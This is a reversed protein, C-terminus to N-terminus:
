LEIKAIIKLHTLFSSHAMIQAYLPNVEFLQRKMLVRNLTQVAEKAGCNLGIHYDIISRDCIDIISFIFLFRDEGHIYGYKIDAEWLQNSETITNNRALKRPHSVKKRRQPRLIDLEKCLRYVKKKNIILKYQRRLVVTLKRYGYSHCEGSILELLFEKIQEDAIKKGDETISYGPAPRGESVQKENVRYNKRYYYTSRPIKLIKLVM